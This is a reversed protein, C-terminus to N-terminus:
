YSQLPSISRDIHKLCSKITTVYDLDVKVLLSPHFFDEHFAPVMVSEDDSEDIHLM